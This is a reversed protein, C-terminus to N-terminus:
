KTEGLNFPQGRGPQPLFEANINNSKCWQMPQAGIAIIRSPKMEYVIKPDLPKGFTNEVNVWYLDCEQLGVREFENCILTAPADPRDDTFNVYPIVVANPKTNAMRWKSCLVLTNGEMFEGGGGYPNGAHVHYSLEKLVYDPTAMDYNFHILPMSNFNREWNAYADYVAELQEDNDLYEERGSNFAQLCSELSPRCSVVVGGRSLAARELMRRHHLPVRTEANRYIKGYIPDSIWSRDFIVHKGYTLAPAMASFYIRAMEGEGVGKYPGHHVVTTDDDKSLWNYIHKILTTKGAGDPGECIVIM